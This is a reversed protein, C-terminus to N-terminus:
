PMGTNTLFDHLYINSSDSNSQKREDDQHCWWGGGGLIVQTSVNKEHGM